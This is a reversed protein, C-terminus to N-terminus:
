ECLNDFPIFARDKFADQMAGVLTTLKLVGNDVTNRDNDGAYAIVNRLVEEM